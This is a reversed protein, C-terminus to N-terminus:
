SPSGVKNHQPYVYARYNESVQQFRDRELWAKDGIYARSGDMSSLYLSRGESNMLNWATSFRQRIREDLNRGVIETVLAMNDPKKINRQADMVTCHLEVRM